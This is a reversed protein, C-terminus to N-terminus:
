EERMKERREECIEGLRGREETIAGEQRENYVNDDGERKM